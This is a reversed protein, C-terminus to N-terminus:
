CLFPILTEYAHPWPIREQELLLGVGNQAAHHVLHAFLASESANLNALETRQPGAGDVALHRFQELTAMSMLVTEAKIGYGRLDHVFQLGPADIDGWYLVRDANAVWDIRAYHAVSFGQGHLVAVGPHDGTFAYGTEKNEIILVTRPRHKWASLDNVSAAFNRMGGVGDRIHPDLVAVQVLDPPLRLGLRQHLRVRSSSGAAAPADDADDQDSDGLLALVLRAHKALWKTDLGEIPLQRLLMGSAPNNHLWTAARALRQYDADDLETIRRIIGAFDACPFTRQLTTLRQGCRRWTALTDPHCAAAEGPHRLMLARPMPHTGTPFRLNANEVQGPGRYSAWEDAWAHCGVPDLSRQDTTPPHLPIRMPWATAGRAWTPYDQQFRQRVWAMVEEPRRM